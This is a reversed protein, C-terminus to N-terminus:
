QQRMFNAIDVSVFNLFEMPSQFKVGSEFDSNEPVRSLYKRYANQTQGNRLDWNGDVAMIAISERADVLTMSVSAQLPAYASLSVVDCYLVGDASYQTSLDVLQQLNFKGKRISHTDCSCPPALVADAFGAQRLSEALSKAFMTQEQLRNTRSVPTVIVIRRPKLQRYYRSVLVNAPTSCAPEQPVAVPLAARRSPIFRCGALGGIAVMSAILIHIMWKTRQIKIM